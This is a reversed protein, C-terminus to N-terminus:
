WCLLNAKFGLDFWAFESWDIPEIICKVQEKCTLRYSKGNERVLKSRELESDKEGIM